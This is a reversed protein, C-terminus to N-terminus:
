YIFQVLSYFSALSLFIAIRKIPKTPFNESLLFLFLLAFAHYFQYRVGTEFTALQDATLKNELGHAGFAGLVVATLAFFSGWILNSKLM